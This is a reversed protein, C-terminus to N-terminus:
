TRNPADWFAMNECMLDIEIGNPVIPLVSTSWKM